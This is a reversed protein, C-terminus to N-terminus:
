SAIGFIRSCEGNVHFINITPGRPSPAPSGPAGVMLTFFMSPPGGLLHHQLDSLV